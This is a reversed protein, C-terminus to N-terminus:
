HNKAQRVAEGMQVFEAMQSKNSSRMESPNVRM